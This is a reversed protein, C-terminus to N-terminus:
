PKNQQHQRMMLQPDFQTVPGTIREPYESLVKTLVMSSDPSVEKVMGFPTVKDSTWVDSNKKDNRWHECSFTGGPVTITEMGASHWDNMETQMQQKADEKPNYPMTMAQQGPLQFIVKHTQLDDKTFLMKGIMVRNSSETYSFELWYGDKGEVTEKGVAGMQMTRVKGKDAGNTQYEAGQGIVPNFVKLLSPKRFLDMGMQARAAPAIACFLAVCCVILVLRKM